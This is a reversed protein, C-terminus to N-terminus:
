VTLSPTAPAFFTSDTREPTKQNKKIKESKKPIARYVFFLSMIVFAIGTTRQWDWTCYRQGQFQAICFISLAGILPIWAFQQTVFKGWGKEKSLSMYAILGLPLPAFFATLESPFYRYFFRLGLWNILFLLSLWDFLALVICNTLANIETQWRSNKKKSTLVFVFLKLILSISCIVLLSLLGVIEFIIEEYTPYSRGCALAQQVGPGWFVMLAMLKRM